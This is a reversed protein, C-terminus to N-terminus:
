CAHPGVNSKWCWLFFWVFDTYIQKKMYLYQYDKHYICLFDKLHSNNQKNEYITQQFISSIFLGELAQSIACHYLLQRIYQSARPETSLFFFFFLSLSLGKM